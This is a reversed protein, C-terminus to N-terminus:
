QIIRVDRLRLQLSATGNWVNIEPTYLITIRGGQGVPLDAMGFGIADVSRGGRPSRLVLKLHGPKGL